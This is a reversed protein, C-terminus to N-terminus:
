QIKTGPEWLKAVCKGRGVGLHNAITECKTFLLFALPKDHEYETLTEINGMGKAIVIDAERFAKLCEDSAWELVLGVSDTGTTILRDAVEDMGVALADEMLADNICPKSKVAVTVEPGLARIERVLLVDFAIEGANDTLYLVKRARRVAGYIAEIDDIAMNEEAGEILARLDEFSFDHGLIDFEMANGVVACLCAKRFKEYSGPARNILEEAWPRMRMAAKNSAEKIAKYPDPNGTLAKILRDRKTGVIAPVADPRFERALLKAVEVMVKLRLAPDETAHCVEKYARHVMCPLCAASVKM